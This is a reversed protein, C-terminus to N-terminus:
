GPVGAVRFRANTKALTDRLLTEMGNKGFVLFVNERYMHDVFRHIAERNAEYDKGLSVGIEDLNGKATDRGCIVLVKEGACVEFNKPGKFVTPQIANATDVDEAEAPYCGQARVYEVFGHVRAKVFLWPLSATSGLRDILAKSHEQTYVVLM